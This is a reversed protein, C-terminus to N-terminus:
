IRLDNLSLGPDSLRGLDLGAKATIISRAQVFDRASNVCDLAIVRGMRIYVLSFSRKIPEGRIIVQDHGISLGVTQLRLDYQNSWFTPVNPPVYERGTLHRAVISAQEAANQVSEIRIRADDAFASAQRACDGIAYINDLSTRCFADVDVGNGAVALLPGVAPLIGIGVIVIDASIESGDNLQVADVRGNKGLLREVSSNLRLEVGNTRHEQEFFRSLPVGAVRALVRDNAELLTVKKGAKVLVAAAELGVYGGGVVVIRTAKSLGSRLRDVDVRTRITHIGELEWGPCDLQRAHGGTAWILSGYVYKEGMNDVLVRHSPDVSLVRRGPALEIDREAWLQPPRLMIRDFSKTGALYDKSLPPREYPPDVEEGMMLLSGSFQQQRLSLAAQAGAHGSGVIIVDRHKM